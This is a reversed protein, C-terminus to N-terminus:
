PHVECREAIKIQVLSFQRSTKWFAKLVSIVHDSLNFNLTGTWSWDTHVRRKEERQCVLVKWQAAQWLTPSRSTQIFVCYNPQRQYWREANWSPKYMRYILSVNNCWHHKLVNRNLKALVSGVNTTHSHSVPFFQCDCSALILSWAQYM